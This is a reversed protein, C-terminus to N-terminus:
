VTVGEKNTIVNGVDGVNGKKVQQGVMNKPYLILTLVQVPVAKHIVELSIFTSDMCAKLWDQLADKYWLQSM